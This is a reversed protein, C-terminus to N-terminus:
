RGAEEAEKLLARAACLDCWLDHNQEGPAAACTVLVPQGRDYRCIRGNVLRVVMGVLREHMNVATVAYAADAETAFADTVTHTECEISPYTDPSRLVRWPRPSVGEPTYPTM